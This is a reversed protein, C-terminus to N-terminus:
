YYVYIKFFHRKYKKYVLGFIIVMMVPLAIAVILVKNERVFSANKPIGANPYTSYSLIAGFYRAMDILKMPLAVIATVFARM